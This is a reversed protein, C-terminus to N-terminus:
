SPTDFHVTGSLALSRKKYETSIPYGAFRGESILPVSIALTGLITMRASRCRPPKNYLKPVLEM